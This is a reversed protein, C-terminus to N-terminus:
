VVAQPPPLKYGLSSHPRVTNDHRRWNEITIKADMLTYFIECYCNEWLNGPMIYATRAGSGRDM